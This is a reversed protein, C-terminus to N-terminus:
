NKLSFSDSILSLSRTLDALNVAVGYPGNRDKHVLAVGSAEINTNGFARLLWQVLNIFILSTCNWSQLSFFHNIILSQLSRATPRSGGFYHGKHALLRVNNFILLNFNHDSVRGRERQENIGRHKKSRMSAVPEPLVQMQRRQINSLNSLHQLIGDTWSYSTTGHWLSQLWYTHTASGQLKHFTLSISRFCFQPSPTWVLFTLYTLSNSTRKLFVSTIYGM